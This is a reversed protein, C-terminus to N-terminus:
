NFLTKEKENERRGNKKILAMALGWFFILPHWLRIQKKSSWSCAKM